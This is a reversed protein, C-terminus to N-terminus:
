SAVQMWPKAQAMATVGDPLDIRTDALRIRGTQHLRAFTRSIVEPSTGVMRAIDKKAVPLDFSDRGDSLDLLIEMIREEISMTTARFAQREMERTEESTWRLLSMLMSRDTEIATVLATQSLPCIVCDHLARASMSHRGAEFLDSFGFTQGPHVLRLIAMEGSDHISELALLGSLLSYGAEAEDGEHFLYEGRRYLRSHGATHLGCSASGSRPTCRLQCPGTTTKACQAKHGAYADMM